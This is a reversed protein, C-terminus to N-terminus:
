CWFSFLPLYQYEGPTGLLVVKGPVGHTQLAAKISLAIGVGSVAILNHGCAHGMGPLADM